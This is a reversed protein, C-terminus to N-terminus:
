KKFLAVKNHHDKDVSFISRSRQSDDIVIRTEALEVSSITRDSMEDMSKSSKRRRSILRVRAAKMKGSMAVFNGASLTLFALFIVSAPAWLAIEWGQQDGVMDM